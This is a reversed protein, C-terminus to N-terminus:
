SPRSLEEKGMADRCMHDEVALSTMSAVTGMAQARCNWVEQGVESVWKDVARLEKMLMEQTSYLPGLWHSSDYLELLKLIMSRVDEDKPGQSLLDLLALCYEFIENSIELPSGAASGFQCVRKILNEKVLPEKSGSFNTPGYSSGGQLWFNSQVLFPQLVSAVLGMQKLPFALPPITPIYQHALRFYRALDASILHSVVNRQSLEPNRKSSTNAKPPMNELQQCHCDIFKSVRFSGGSSTIAPFPLWSRISFLLNQDWTAWDYGCAVDAAKMLERFVEASPHGVKRGSPSSLDYTEFSGVLGLVPHSRFSLSFNRTQVSPLRTEVDVELRGNGRSALLALHILDHMNAYAPVSSLDAPVYDASTAKCNWIRPHDLDLLTLLALWSASFVQPINKHLRLSSYLLLIQPVFKIAQIGVLICYKVSPPLRRGTTTNKELVVLLRLIWHLLQSKSSPRPAVRDRSWRMSILPTYAVTRFRKESWDFKRTTLQSWPGISYRGCKLRGPGAALLGQFITLGAFCLAVIGIIVTVAFTAPDWNYDNNQDKIENVLEGVRQLIHETVNLLLETVNLAGDDSELVAM